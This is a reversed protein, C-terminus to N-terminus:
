QLFSCKLCNLLLHTSPPGLSGCCVFLNQKQWLAMGASPHCAGPVFDPAPVIFHHPLFWNRTKWIYCYGRGKERKCTFLLWPWGTTCHCLLPPPLTTSLCWITTSPYPCWPAWCPSVQGSQLCLWSPVQCPAALCWAPKTTNQPQKNSQWHDISHGRRSGQSM